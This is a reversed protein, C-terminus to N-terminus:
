RCIRCLHDDLIHMYRRISFTCRATLVVGVSTCLERKHHHQRHHILAMERRTARDFATM